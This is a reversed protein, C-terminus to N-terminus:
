IRMSYSFLTVYYIEKGKPANPRLLSGIYLTSDCLGSQLYKLSIIELVGRMSSSGDMRVPAQDVAARVSPTRLPGQTSRQM